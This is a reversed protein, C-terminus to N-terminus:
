THVEIELDDLIQQIVDLCLGWKKFRRLAAKTRFRPLGYVEQIEQLVRALFAMKNEEDFHELTLGGSVYLALPNSHYIVEYAAVAAARGKSTLEIPVQAREEDDVNYGETLDVIFGIHRMHLRSHWTWGTDRNPRTLDQKSVLISVLDNHWCFVNNGTSVLQLM